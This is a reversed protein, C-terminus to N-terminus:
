MGSANVIESINREHFLLKEYGVSVSKKCVVSFVQCIMLPGGHLCIIIKRFYLSLVNQQQQQQQSRVM